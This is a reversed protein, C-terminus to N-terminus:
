RYTTKSHHKKAVKLRLAERQVLALKEQYLQDDLYEPALEMAKVAEQYALDIQSLDLEEAYQAEDVLLEVKGKDSVRVFGGYIALSKTTKNNIEIMAEGLELEAILTGHNPLIQIEGLVTPLIISSVNEIDIRKDPSIIALHLNSLSM